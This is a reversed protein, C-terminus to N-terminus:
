NHFVYKIITQIDNLSPYSHQKWWGFNGCLYTSSYLAEHLSGYSLGILQCDFHEDLDSRDDDSLGDIIDRVENFEARYEHRTVHRAYMLGAIGICSM